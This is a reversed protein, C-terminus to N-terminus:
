RSNRAANEGATRGSYLTFSLESGYFGYGGNLWGSTCVGAAYLGPIPRQNKDIVELRYNVHIGGICTDIGSPGQFVYYPPTELAILHCPQKLFDADYGNHCHMNYRAMTNQLTAADCGIWAAIEEITRCIKVRGAAKESEIDEMLNELWEGQYEKGRFFSFKEDVEEEGTDTQGAAGKKYSIDLSSLYEFLGIHENKAIMDKVMKDDFIVWTMKGPQRDTAYSVMWGFNSNTWVGEDMFREGNRNVKLSHPRRIFMGTLESHGAGHNHPGIYLTSLNGIKAGIEEAMILGDGTNHPIRSMIQIDEYDEGQYFRSILEKNASISGTAIVTSKANIRLTKDAQAALVGIVRGSKDQLLHQARTELLIEIGLRQCEAKLVRLMKLGTRADKEISVHHTSRCFEKLGQFPAVIDFYMGKSELWRVTEGSGCMWNRVLRADCNWYLLQVLDSFCEDATHHIGLRQQAPSEVAFFGGCVGLTGGLRKTKEILTVKKAGNEVACIAATMGSAAGGIVCVDTEIVADPKQRNADMNM